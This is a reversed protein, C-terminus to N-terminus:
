KPTKTDISQNVLARRAAGLNILFMALYAFLLEPGMSCDPLFVTRFITSYLYKYRDTARM